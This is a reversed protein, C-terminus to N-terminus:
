RVSQKSSIRVGNANENSDKVKLGFHGTGRRADSADRVEVFQSSEAVRDTHEILALIDAESAEAEIRTSYTVNPARVPEGGWDPKCMWKCHKRNSWASNRQRVSSIMATVGALPLACLNVEM